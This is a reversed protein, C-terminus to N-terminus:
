HLQFNNLIVKSYCLFLLWFLLQFAFLLKQIILRYRVLVCAISITSKTFIWKRTAFNRFLLGTIFSYLRLRFKFKILVSNTGAVDWCRFLSSSLRVRSCDYNTNKQFKLKASWSLSTWHRTIVLAISIKFKYSLNSRSNM